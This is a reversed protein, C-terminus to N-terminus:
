KKLDIDTQNTFPQIIGLLQNQIPIRYETQNKTTHLQNHQNLPLTCLICFYVRAINTELSNLDAFLDNTVALQKANLFYVCKQRLHACYVSIEFLEWM